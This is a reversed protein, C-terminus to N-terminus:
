CVSPMNRKFLILDTRTIEASMINGSEANNNTFKALDLQIKNLTEAYISTINDFYNNIFYEHNKGKHM